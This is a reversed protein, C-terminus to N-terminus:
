STHGVPVQDTYIFVSLKKDYIVDKLYEQSIWYGCIYSYFFILPFHICSNLLCCVCVIVCVCVCVYVCVGAFM